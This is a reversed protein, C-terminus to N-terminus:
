NEASRLLRQVIADNWQFVYSLASLSGQAFDDRKCKVSWFECRGSTDTRGSTMQSWLRSVADLM